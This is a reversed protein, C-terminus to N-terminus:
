WAAGSVMLREDRQLTILGGAEFFRQNLQDLRARAILPQAKQMLM